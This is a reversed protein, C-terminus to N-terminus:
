NAGCHCQKTECSIHGTKGGPCTCESKPGCPPKKSPAPPKAGSGKGGSSPPKPGGGGGHGGGAGGRPPVLGQWPFGPDHPSRGMPPCPGNPLWYQVMMGPTKEYYCWVGQGAGAGMPGGAGVTPPQEGPPPQLGPQEVPPGGGAAGSTPGLPPFGKGFEEGAETAGKIDPPRKGGLDIEPAKKKGGDDIDPSKKRGDDTPRKQEDPPKSTQAFCQGARTADAEAYAAMVEAAGALANLNEILGAPLPEVSCQKAKRIKATLTQAKALISQEVGDHYRVYTEGHSGQASIRSCIDNILGLASAIQQMAPKTDIIEHPGDVGVAVVVVGPSAQAIGHIRSIRGQVGQCKTVFSKVRASAQEVQARQSAVAAKIGDIAGLTSEARAIADNNAQIQATCENIESRLSQANNAIRKIAEAQGNALGAASNAMQVTKATGGSTSYCTLDAQRKAIDRNGTLPAKFSEAQAPLSKLTNVRSRCQGCLAQNDSVAEFANMEALKQQTRQYVSKAEEIARGQDQEMSRAEQVMSAAQDAFAKIRENAKAQAQEYAKQAEEAQQKAKQSEIRESGAKGVSILVESVGVTLVATVARAASEAASQAYEGPTLNRGERRAEEAYRSGVDWGVLVGTLVGGAVEGGSVPSNLKTVARDLLSPKQFSSKGETLATYGTQPGTAQGPKNGPSITKNGEPMAKPNTGSLTPGSSVGPNMLERVGARAREAVGGIAQGVRNVLGAAADYAKDLIGPKPTQPKSIKALQSTLQQRFSEATGPGFERHLFAYDDAMRQWFAPSSTNEGPFITPSLLQPLRFGERRMAEIFGVATKAGWLGLPDVVNVPDNYVYAYESFNQPTTLSKPYPDPSLFIGLEPDYYRARYYYLGSEPDYFRGTYTLPNNKEAGSATMKGFPEYEYEVVVEGNEDALAVTSGQHDRLYFLARDSELLVLPSDIEGAHIFTQKPEGKQNLAMLLNVGDHIYHTRGSGVDKAVRQGDPSYGYKITNSPTKMEGLRGLADFRFQQDVEPSHKRSLNGSADYTLTTKGARVLQGAPNYEFQTEAGSKKQLVRKFSEGYSFTIKEDPVAAEVLQGNADYAFARAYGKSDGIRKVRGNEDHAYEYKRIVNGSRGIYNIGELLNRNYRYQMKIGNAYAVEAKRGLADYAFTIRKGEGYIVGTLRNAADYNYNVKLHGPVELSLRNGRRDYSYKVTKGLLPYEESTLEGFRGYSLKKVFDKGRIEILNGVPDYRFTELSGDSTKVGILRDEVDYSYEIANGSSSNQKLLRDSHDYSYEIVNRWPTRERILRQAQDYVYRYERKDPTRASVLFDDSDYEYSTQEGNPLLVRELNGARNYFYTKAQGLPDQEAILQGATDYANRHKMGDPGVFAVLRGMADYEWKTVSGKPEHLELVNGLPDYRYDTAAGDPAVRKTVEGLANYEFSSIRGLSDDISLLWGYPNYQYSEKRGNPYIVSELNGKQDYAFNTALGSSDTLEILRLYNDYKKSLLIRSSDSAETLFGHGDYTYKVRRGIPDIREVARGQGDRQFRITRGLADTERIVFGHPDYEYKTWRKQDRGYYIVDVLGLQNYRYSIEADSPGAVKVVQAKDNYTLTIESGDQLTKKTVLSTKKLYSYRVIGNDPYRIAILRHDADYTYTVSNGNADVFRALLGYDNYYRQTAHGRADFTKILKGGDEIEIKQLAGPYDITVGKVRGGTDRVYSYRTAGNRKTIRQVAGSNGVYAIDVFDGTQYAIRTLRGRDDYDYSTVLHDGNTTRALFGRENYQYQSSAGHYSRIEAILGLKNYIYQLLERDDLLVKALRGNAYSLTVTKGDPRNIRILRGDTTYVERVGTKLTRVFESKRRSIRENSQSLYVDAEGSQQFLVMDSGDRLFIKGDDQALILQKDFPHFNWRTKQLQPPGLSDHSRSVDIELSHYRVVLDTQLTIFAGSLPDVDAFVSRSVFLIALPALLLFTFVTKPHIM